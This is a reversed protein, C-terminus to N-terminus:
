SSVDLGIRLTFVLADPYLGSPHVIYQLDPQISLRGTRLVYTAEWATEAVHPAGRLSARAIGIVLHDKPHPAFPGAWDAGLGAYSAFAGEKPPSVGAQLFFTLRGPAGTFVSWEGIGFAGWDSSPVGSASPGDYTWLGFKVGGKAGNEGPWLRGAESILTYGDRWVSGRAEPDGQFVAVGGTWLNGRKQAIAGWGFKPFISPTTDGSLTPMIGFSSNILLQASDTTVFTANLDLLGAQLRLGHSPVDQRYWFENLRVSDPAAINSLVQADGTLKQSPLGSRLQQASIRLLGNKWLGLDSTDASIGVVLKDDFATGTRIGGKLNFVEEAALSADWRLARPIGAHRNLGAKEAALQESARAATGPTESAEAALPHTLHVPGPRGGPDTQSCVPVAALVSMALLFSARVASIKM